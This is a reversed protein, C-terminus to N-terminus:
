FLFPKEWLCSHTIGGWFNKKWWRCLPKWLQSRFFTIPGYAHINLEYSHNKSNSNSHAIDLKASDRSPECIDYLYCKLWINKIYLSILVVQRHFSKYFLWQYVTFINKLPLRTLNLQEWVASSWVKIFHARDMVSNHM